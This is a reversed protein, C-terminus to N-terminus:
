FPLKFGPPLKIGSTVSAMKEQTLREVRRNADNVAAAVLDELMSIDERLLQPDIRVRKVDHRGTMVVNVMGAGSEGTVELLAIAEQAKQMDAQMQQAQKMMNGITGKM